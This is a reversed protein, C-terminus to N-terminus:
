DTSEFTAILSNSLAYTPVSGSNPIFLNGEWTNFTPQVPVLQWIAENSSALFVNNLDSTLSYMGSNIISTAESEANAYQGLYLYVRSLLATAAWKNPRVRGSSIYNASLLNQAGKLDSIIQQYVEASKERPLFSNREFDTSIILPIDGFLNILYFYCFARIFKAEAILLNKIPTTVSSSNNLGEIISNAQYIYNYGFAWFANQLITNSTSISNKYFEDGSDPSPPYIEDSSLSPYITMADSSFLLNTQIMRSYLGSIASVASKDSDFVVAKTLRNIPPDVGILKKCSSNVAILIVSIYAYKFYFKKSKM